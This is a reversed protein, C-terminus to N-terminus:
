LFIRRAPDLFKSPPLHLQDLREVQGYRIFVLYVFRHYKLVDKKERLSNCRARIERTKKKKWRKQQLSQFNQFVVIERSAVAGVRVWGIQQIKRFVRIPRHQLREDTADRLGHM